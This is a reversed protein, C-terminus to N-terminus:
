ATRRARARLRAVALLGTALLALTGPEPAATFPPALAFPENGVGESFVFSYEPGVGPGFSFVPDIIAAGKGGVPIGDRGSGAAVSVEAFLSLTLVRNAPVTVGVTDRFSEELYGVATVPRREIGGSRFEGPAAFSWATKYALSSGFGNVFGAGFGAVRIEIPVDGDPGVVMVDYHMTGVVRGFYSQEVGVIWALIYPSPVVGAHLEMWGPTGLLRYEGPRFVDLPPPALFNFMLSGSFRAQDLDIGHQATAARIPCALMAAWLAALVRVFPRRAHGAEAWTVRLATVQERM